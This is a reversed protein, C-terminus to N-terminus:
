LTEVGLPRALVLWLGDRGRLEVGTEEDSSPTAIVELDLCGFRATSAPMGDIEHDFPFVPLVYAPEPEITAEAVADLAEVVRRGVRACLAEIVGASTIVPPAPKISYCAVRGLSRLHELLRVLQDREAATADTLHLCPRGSTFVVCIAFTQPKRM